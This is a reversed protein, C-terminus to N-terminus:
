EETKQNIFNSIVSSMSSMDLTNLPLEQLPVGAALLNVLSYELCSPLEESDEVIRIEYSKRGAQQIPQLVERTVKDGRLVSQTRFIKHRFM